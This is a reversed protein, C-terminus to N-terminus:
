RGRPRVARADPTRSGPRRAPGGRGGAAGPARGPLLGAAAAAAGLQFRNDVGHEVMLRAVHRRVSRLGLGLIRAVAEDKLGADLLELLRADDAARGGAAGPVPSGAAWALDFLTTYVRVLAPDRILRYGAGLDSWDVSAVVASDDFVAFESPPEPVLRQVEGIESWTRMWRRGLDSEHVAFSYIARQEMGRRIRAQAERVMADEVGPGADVSLVCTRVVQAADVLAETQAALHEPPILTGGRDGTSSDDVLAHLTVLAAQIDVVAARHQELIAVERRVSESLATLVEPVKSVRRPQGAAM